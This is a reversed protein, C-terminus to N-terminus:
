QMRETYVFHTHMVGYTWASFSPVHDILIHVPTFPYIKGQMIEHLMNLALHSLSLILRLIIDTDLNPFMM